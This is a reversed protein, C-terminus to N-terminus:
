QTIPEDPQTSASQRAKRLGERRKLNFQAQRIMTIAGDNLADPVVNNYENIRDIAINLLDEITFGNVEVGSHQMQLSAIETSDEASAVLRHNGHPRVEILGGMHAGFARIVKEESM